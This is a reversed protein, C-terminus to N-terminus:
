PVVQSSDSLVVLSLPSKESLSSSAGSVILGAYPNESAAGKLALLTAPIAGFSEGMLFVPLDIKVPDEQYQAWQVASAMDEVLCDISDFHFTAGDEGEGADQQYIRSYGCGQMDFAVCSIGEKGVALALREFYGSHWGGGHHIVLIGKTTKQVSPWRRVALRDGTTSVLPLGSLEPPAAPTEYTGSDSKASGTNAHAVQVKRTCAGRGPRLTQSRSRRYACPHFQPPWRNCRRTCWRERVRTWSLLLLDREAGTSKGALRAEERKYGAHVAPVGPSARRGPQPAIQRWPLRSVPPSAFGYRTFRTRTGPGAILLVPWPVSTASYVRGRPPGGRAGATGISERVQFGRRLARWPAKAERRARSPSKSRRRCSAHKVHFDATPRARDPGYRRSSSTRRTLAPQRESGCPSVQRTFTPSDPTAQACPWAAGM